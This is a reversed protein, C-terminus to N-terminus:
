SSFHVDAIDDDDTAAVVPQDGSEVQRFRSELRKHELAARLGAARCDRIFKMGAEAAGRQRMGSARNTRVDDAVHLQLFM